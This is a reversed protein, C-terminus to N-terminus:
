SRNERMGAISARVNARIVDAIAESEAADISSWGMRRMV